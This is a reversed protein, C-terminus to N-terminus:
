KLLDKGAVQGLAQMIEDRQVSGTGQLDLSAKIENVTKDIEEHSLDKDLVQSVVKKMVEIESETVVHDLMDSAVFRTIMQEVLSISGDGDKDAIKFVSDVMLEAVDQNGGYLQKMRHRVDDKTIVGGGRSVEEFSGLRLWFLASFFEVLILKAPIASHSSPLDEPRKTAAWDLLPQHNDIGSLFQHPFATLYNQNPDFEKGLISKIEGEENFMTTGSTHIYGGKAIKDKAFRRSFQITDLLVKGPLLCVSMETPYPLEAKMDSWTFFGDSDYEKGARVSGANLLVVQCRLGMRLMSCLATTGTSPGLRNDKTSFARFNKSNDRDLWDKIMFLKAKDLERLISEHSNVRDKVVPDAPFEKTPIMQVQISPLQMDDEWRIDIVAAQHADMGTKIIQCGNINELYPEHDHGTMLLNIYKWALVSTFVRLM